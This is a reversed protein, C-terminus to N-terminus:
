RRRLMVPFLMSALLGALGPLCGGPRRDPPDSPGPYTIDPM